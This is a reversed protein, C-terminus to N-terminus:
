RGRGTDRERTRRQLELENAVRARYRAEQEREQAKSFGQLAKEIAKIGANVSEAKRELGPLQAAQQQWQMHAQHLEAESRIGLRDVHQLAEAVRDQAKRYAERSDPSFLRKIANLAGDHKRADEQANRHRILASHAQELRHGERNIGGIQDQITKLTTEQATYRRTIDQVTLEEGGNGYELRALAQAHEPAWGAQLRTNYRDTTAKEAQRARKEERAKELDIVVANHEQVTRNHDGKETPIGRRELAHAHPGLHVQPLRDQGQAELSRHDIREERGARELAANSHVAWRERWQELMEPKNWDRNKKASLGEPGVERMTLMIHAHPNGPNRHIAVDAVMGKSVFQDKVYARVLERQQERDLELPLAVVIERAVQADGRREAKEVENWLREREYVWAPAGAPALIEAEIDGRRRTYDYTQGTREDHIKEGARYAAAGTSSRGASRGIIQASLYYIAM